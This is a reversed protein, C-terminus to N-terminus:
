SNGSLCSPADFYNRIRENVGVKDANSVSLSGLTVGYFAM